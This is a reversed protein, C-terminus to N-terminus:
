GKESTGEEAAKELKGDVFMSPNANNVLIFFLFAWFKEKLM